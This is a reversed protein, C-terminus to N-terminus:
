VNQVIEKCSYRKKARRVCELNLLTTKFLNNMDRMLRRGIEREWNVLSYLLGLRLLFLITQTTPDTVLSRRMNLTGFIVTLAERQLPVKMRILACLMNYHKYVSIASVEMSKYKTHNYSILLTLLVTFGQYISNILLNRVTCESIQHNTMFFKCPVTCHAVNIERPQYYHVFNLRITAICSKKYYSHKATVWDHQLNNEVISGEKLM